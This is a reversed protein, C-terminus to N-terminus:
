RQFVIAEMKRRWEADGKKCERKITEDNVIISYYCYYYKKIHM